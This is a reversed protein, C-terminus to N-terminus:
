EKGHPKTGDCPLSKKVMPLRMAFVRAKKKRYHVSPLWLIALGLNAMYGNIADTCFNTSNADIDMIHGNALNSVHLNMELM